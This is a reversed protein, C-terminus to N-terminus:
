VYICKQKTPKDHVCKDPKDTKYYPCWYNGDKDPGLKYRPDDRPNNSEEPSHSAQQLSLLYRSSIAQPQRNFHGYVASLGPGRFSDDDIDSLCPYGFDDDNSLPPSPYGFNDDDIDFPVLSRFNDDMQSGRYRGKEYERLGM